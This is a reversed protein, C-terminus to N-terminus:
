YSAFRSGPLCCAVEDFEHRFRTTGTNPNPQRAREEAVIVYRVPLSAADM